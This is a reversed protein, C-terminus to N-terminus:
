AKFQELENLAWDLVDQNSWTESYTFGTMNLVTKNGDTQTVNLLVDCTNHQIKYIVAKLTMGDATFETENIKYM